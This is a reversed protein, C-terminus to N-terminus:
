CPLKYKMEQIVYPDVISVFGNVEGSPIYMQLGDLQARLSTRISFDRELFWQLMTVEDPRFAQTNLYLGRCSRSKRSGDDMFWVALALPTLTLDPPVVKRGEYFRNRFEGLEPHAVTAFGVNMSQTGLRNGKLRSAPPTLVWGSWESYKWTVYEIQRVSHEVKLRAWGLANQKELHGDGLLLGVLIERQRSTLFLEQKLRAIAKTNM